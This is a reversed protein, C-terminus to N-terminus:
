LSSHVRDADSARRLLTSLEVDTRASGAIYRDPRILLARRDADALYDALARDEASLVVAGITALAHRDAKNLAAALTPDALLAFRYGVSDDMRSGDALIPQRSLTGVLADEVRLVEDGITQRPAVIQEVVPQGDDEQGSAKSIIQQVLYASIEIHQRAPGKRESEYSDLLQSAAEGRTVLGLKWALNAVDRIGNCLGQGLKPTMLHAADGAIFMRRDRWKSALLSHFRYIDHRLIVAESPKLWPSLLTWSRETGDFDAETEGEKVDFEYRRYPGSLPIYTVIRDPNCYEWQDMGPAVAPDTLKVDVIFWRHSAALQDFSSGMSKRVISAAGDCGVLWKAAHSRGVGSQDITEVGALDDTQWVRTVTEGLAMAPASSGSSLRDRMAKEIDPQFFMFDHRYSQDSIGLPFLRSLFPTWDKDFYRYRPPNEMGESLHALGVAQYVRIIEDDFHAARPYPEIERDRNVVLVRLGQEKLLLALMAGVPGYGVVIVDYPTNVITEELGNGKM